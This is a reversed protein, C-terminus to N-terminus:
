RAYMFMVGYPISAALSFALGTAILPRRNPHEQKILGIAGVVLLYLLALPSAFILIIPWLNSAQLLAQITVIVVLVMLPAPIVAFYWFPRRLTFLTAVQVILYVTFFTGWGAFLFTLWGTIGIEDQV